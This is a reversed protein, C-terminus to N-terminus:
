INPYNEHERKLCNPGTSIQTIVTEKQCAKKETLDYPSLFEKKIKQTKSQEKFYKFLQM